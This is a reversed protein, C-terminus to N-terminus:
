SPQAEPIPLPFGCHRYYGAIDRASIRDPGVGIAHLLTDHTREAVGRLDTKLKAFALEILNDDPSSAALYRVQCGAAEIAPRVGAIVTAGCQRVIVM